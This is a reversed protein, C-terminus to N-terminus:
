VTLGELTCFSQERTAAFDVRAYALVAVQLNSGMFAESLIRISIDKRVGFILDRWDAIIGSATTGGTLPASTTWLKPLAAIEAPMTLPTNDNTIGTKLKRMKKWVAPHAIFAGINEMPVNDAALEYMGDVLFDWDTPAGISTVSNRNALDMIGSPAAGANTTTGVLGARDIAAAMSNTITSQLIQEINASDQALELSLKVLCVVTKANLNVAGFTPDSDALAANEGHWSCTPDTLVRAISLQGTEMPITRAGARSLVMNARLNDIWQSSLAGSVTYGGAPDGGIGLSKREMELENADDCRGGLVIGRLIRGLSPTDSKYDLSALSHSHSLVPVSKKTKVDFFTEHKAKTVSNGDSAFPRGTKKAIDGVDKELEAFRADMKRRFATIDDGQQKILEVAENLDSM